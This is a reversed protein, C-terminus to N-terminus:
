GGVEGLGELFKEVDFEEIEFVKTFFREYVKYSGEFEAKRLLIGNLKVVFSFADPNEALKRLSDKM